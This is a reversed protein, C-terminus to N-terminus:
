IPMPVEVQVMFRLNVRYALKGSEESWYPSKDVHQLFIEFTEISNRGIIMSREPVYDERWLTMFVALNPYEKIGVVSEVSSFLTPISMAFCLKIVVMNSVSGPLIIYLITREQKHITLTPPVRAVAIDNITTDAREPRGKKCSRNAEPGDAAPRKATTVEPIKTTTASAESRRSQFTSFGVRPVLENEISLRAEPSRKPEDYHSANTHTPSVRAVPPEPSDPERTTGQLLSVQQNDDKTSSGESGSPVYNEDDVADLNKVAINKAKSESDGDSDEGNRQQDEAEDKLGFAVPAIQYSNGQGSWARYQTRGQGAHHDRVGFPKVILREGNIDLTYFTSRIDWARIALTVPIEKQPFLGDPTALTIRKPDLAGKNANLRVFPPRMSPYDRRAQQLFKAEHDDALSTNSLATDGTLSTAEAIMVKAPLHVQNHSRPPEETAKGETDMRTRVGQPHNALPRDSDTSVNDPEDSDGTLDVFRGQGTGSRTTQFRYTGRGRQTMSRPRGSFMGINSEIVDTLDEDDLDERWTTVGRITPGNCELMIPDMDGPVVNRPRPKFPNETNIM